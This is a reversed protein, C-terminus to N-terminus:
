SRNVSKLPALNGRLLVFEVFLLNPVFGLWAELMYITLPDFNTTASLIMHWLRLTIASCTLAYSRIMFAKHANINRNKIEIFARCTFWFWLCDLIIFAIKSPLLGNAYIAMIMAAPFNIFLINIVYMKGVVRHLKPFSTRLVNSFQTFGAILVFISIFVHTYFAIKWIKLHLYEQKYKLFGAQDSFSFYQFIINLLLMTGVSLLLYLFFYKFSRALFKRM